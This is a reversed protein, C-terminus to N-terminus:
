MGDGRAKVFAEKRTWCNFFGHLKATAALAQYTRHENRSFYRAAVADADPVERIAEVDIGVASGWTFAFAAFEDRRSVNFQLGSTALHPALAPKGCEGYALEVASPSVGLRVGLLRRLQARALIFRAAHRQLAFRTARNREPPALLATAERVASAELPLHKWVVEVNGITPM